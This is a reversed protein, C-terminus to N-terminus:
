AAVTLSHVAYDEVREKEAGAKRRSYESNRKCDFVGEVDNLVKEPMPFRAVTSPRFVPVLEVREESQGVHHDARARDRRLTVAAARARCLFVGPVGGARRVAAV